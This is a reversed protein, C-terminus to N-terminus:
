TSHAILLRLDSMIENREESKKTRQTPSLTSLAERLPVNM